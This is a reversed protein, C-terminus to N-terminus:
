ENSIKLVQEIVEHSFGRRLLRLKAKPDTALKPHKRLYDCLAGKEDFEYLAEKPLNYHQLFLSIRRSGYGKRAQIRVKSKALEEDDLFRSCKDLAEAIESDPFGEQRLREELDKRFRAKISLLYIARKYAQM